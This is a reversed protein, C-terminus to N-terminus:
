RISITYAGTERRGEGNIIVIQYMGTSPLVFVLRSGTGGGSATGDALRNGDADYLRLYPSFASSEVDLTVTEGAAGQFQWTDAFTDGMVQDGPELRGQMSSGIAIQGIVGPAPVTGAPPAEAPAPPPTAVPPQTVPAAPAVPPPATPAPQAAAPIPTLPSPQAAQPSPAAPAPQAVPAPAVPQPQMVPAPQAVAQPQPAPEPQTVPATFAAPAGPPPATPAPQAAQAIPTVPLPQAAQPAPAAPLPQVAKPAPAAPPPPAPAAQAVPAPAVPEPQTVPAPQAAAQPQTVARPPAVPEIRALVPAAAGYAQVRLTYRGVSGNPSATTVLLHYEGSAACTHVLRANTGGGSNGDRSVVNGGPDIVMAYNDWDSLIDMQFQQGALCAFAYANYKRDDYTPAGAALVDVTEQNVGITGVTILKPADVDPPLVHAQTERVSLTFTGLQDARRAGALIQYIGTYPLDYSIRASGTGVRADDDTITQGEWDELSLRPDFDGSTLDIQVTRGAAGYFSFLQSHSRASSLATDAAGLTGTVSGGIGIMRQATAPSAVSAM